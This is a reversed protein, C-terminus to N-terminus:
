ESKTECIACRGDVHPLVMGCHSCPLEETPKFDPAGTCNDGQAKMTGAASRADIVARLEGQKQCEFRAAFALYRCCAPGSGLKCVESLHKESPNIEKIEM